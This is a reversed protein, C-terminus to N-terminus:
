PTVVLLANLVIKPPAPKLGASNDYCYFIILYVKNHNTPSPLSRLDDNLSYIIDIRQYFRTSFESLSIKLTISIRAQTQTYNYYGGNWEAQTRETGDVNEM